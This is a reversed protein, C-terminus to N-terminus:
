TSWRPWSRSARSRLAAGIYPMSQTYPCAARLATSTARSREPQRLEAPLHRRRGAGEPLPCPRHGVKVPFCTESLSARSAWTSSRGTPRAAFGGPRLRLRDLLTAWFPLQENFFFVFPIGIRARPARGAGGSAPERWRADLAAEDRFAFLDPIDREDEEPRRRVERLPQRLVAARERGRRQGPQDRLPQRLGASSAHLGRLPPQSADFGKFRSAGRGRRDHAAHAILALRPRGTM